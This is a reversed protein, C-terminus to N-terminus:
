ARSLEIPLSTFNDQYYSHKLQSLNNSFARSVAANHNRNVEARVSRGPFSTM